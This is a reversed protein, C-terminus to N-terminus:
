HTPNPNECVVIGKLLLFFVVPPRLKNNRIFAEPGAGPGDQPGLVYSALPFCLFDDIFACMSLIKKNVEHMLVITVRPPSFVGVSSWLLTSSFLPERDPEKEKGLQQCGEM